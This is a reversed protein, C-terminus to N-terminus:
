ATPMQGTERAYQIVLLVLADILEAMTADGKGRKENAIAEVDPMTVTYPGLGAGVPQGALLAHKKHAQGHRNLHPVKAGDDGTTEMDEELARGWSIYAVASMPQDPRTHITLNEVWPVTYSTAPITPM